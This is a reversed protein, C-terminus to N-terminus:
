RWEIGEIVVRRRTEGVVELRVEIRDDPLLEIANEFWEVLAVGDGGLYEEIGADRASAATELRYLDLHYVPVRARYAHMLTFTPSTVDAPDGGAGELFGRTFTTKGAGLDGSLGIVQGARAEAGLRRGLAMTQEASDTFLEVSM